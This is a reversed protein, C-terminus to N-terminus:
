EAVCNNKMLSQFGDIMFGCVEENDIRRFVVVNSDVAEGYRDADNELVCYLIDYKEDYNLKAM